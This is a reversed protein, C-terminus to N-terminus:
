RVTADGGTPRTGETVWLVLDDFATLVEQPAFACHGFHDATRQVLWDTRALSGYITQHFAPVVPDRTTHLTLMPAAIAGSPSYYQQLYSLADPTPAFRQISGDVATPYVTDINDFFSHGHTRELLDNTFRFNFGIAQLAGVIIEQPSSFPLKAATAFALTPTGPTFFGQQLAAIVATVLPDDPGFSGPPVDLLTGPLVGPFYADFLVRVHGLYQVEPIGGGLLGCMALAGDYQGPFGEALMQVATAGLSHGVLYTRSPQRVAAAFLASLQHLRQAADKLAYGNESYSSSAVAFGRALLADRLAEFGDQSSPLAVPAAPDVIGHGYIILQGNWNDPVAFAYDAGPGTSGRLFQTAGAPGAGLICVLVTGATRRMWTTM